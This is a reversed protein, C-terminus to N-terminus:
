QKTQQHADKAFIEFQERVTPLVTSPKVHKLFEQKGGFAIVYRKFADQLIGTLVSQSVTIPTAAKAPNIGQSLFYDAQDVICTSGRLAVALGEEEPAITRAVGGPEDAQSEMLGSILFYESDEMKFHGYVWAAVYRGQLEPCTAVLTRPMTEFDIKQRDYSIGFLPDTM